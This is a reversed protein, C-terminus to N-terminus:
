LVGFAVAGLLVSGGMAVRGQTRLSTGESSGSLTNGSGCCSGTDYTVNNAKAATALTSGNFNGINYFDCLLFNPPRGWDETCQQVTLEASGYTSTNANTSNLQVFDPILINGNSGTFSLPIEVNLNHNALYLRQQSVDRKQGPPRQVTCPFSANTPSFPTQWQYSWMDLLWPVKTQDADYALMVVVRKNSLIMEALTPWGSIDMPQSKPIYLYDIM